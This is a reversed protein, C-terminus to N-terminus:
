SVQFSYEDFPRPIIIKVKEDKLKERLTEAEDRRFTRQLHTLALCHISNRKAMEVLDTVCAHNPIKNDYTYAEHIVLDSGRYLEETSDTFMGDGSYCLTNKGNSVRVAHNSAPHETPAFSLELENVTVPRNEDGELFRVAFEFRGSVGRYGYEILEEITKQTGGPCIITLPKKRKEEWMRTLLAPVGFYHDAHTHSIFLADLFSQNSNYKWLRGPANYGCDLLLNTESLILHSNNTLTEDFAEGVGLFIVKM